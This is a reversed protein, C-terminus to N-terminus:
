NSGVTVVDFDDDGGPVTVVYGLQRLIIVASDVSMLARRKLPRAPRKTNEILVYGVHDHRAISISRTEAHTTRTIVVPTNPIDKFDSM